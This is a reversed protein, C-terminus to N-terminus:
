TATFLASNQRIELLNALYFVNLRNPYCKWDDIKDSRLVKSLTWFGDRLELANKITHIELAVTSYGLMVFNLFFYVQYCNTVQLNILFM